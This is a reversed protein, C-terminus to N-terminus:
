IRFDRMQARFQGPTQGTKKKFIVNFYEAHEFGIKEAIDAQPLETKSLLKKAEGLRARLIEEKPSHGLARCFRRELMSRSLPVIKLLDGVNIGECVHDRIYKAAVAVCSDEIALIETSRRTVIGAPKVYITEVMSRQGSMMTHLLKAAEYGIIECNPVVSSLPPDSLNCLIEDNDVGIVAIEDPVVIGKDRCANIVQQGRIDNCAMLGIPKPLELLWKAVSKAYRLGLEEYECTGPKLPKQYDEFIHCRFGSHLINRAFLDRRIDSYDAGNFGCFAYNRFGREILHNATLHAITEEDARVSPMRIDPLCYRVDVVPLGLKAIKVAMPHSDVRAIIGDGTWNDLWYPCSDGLGREQHFISWPGKERVYKAIGLLIGRGYARSSEILLAVRPRKVQHPM